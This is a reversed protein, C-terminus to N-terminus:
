KVVKLDHVMLQMTELNNYYNCEYAYLLDVKKLGKDLLHGMRFAVATYTIGGDSVTLKLHQGEKGMKFAKKVQLNRSVFLAGPNEIGTPELRDLELSIVTKLECLPLELDYHLVPHLEKDGLERAAIAQLALILEALNEQRVTFGAAMAHGGHRELLHACEDLARTINFEPISRCSARVFDDYQCAVVSPRYYNETLRSAVLGVLGASKRDFEPQCAFLLYPAAEETEFLLEASQVMKLTREQRDRNQNDLKLALDGAEDKDVAILLNYADMPSELRGAANLRPGIMFGIDRATLNATTEIGAARILSWLGQRPKKRLQELGAKVLTRNEGVLPVIDAVTGIAVLDLWDEACAGEVPNRQFLGQAIKFALGVGALNKEPYTDGPQKPNIVALAYPLEPKPEHHDSIILDVGLLRAHDAEALSRIGCDVTVVVQFGDAVLKDLAAINLGYGEKFRDPIYAHANGGLRRLALVLLATATVGDVDYDGYVAIKESNKLARSLRNVAAEMGILCFPDYLPGQREMFIKAEQATLIGRNALLRRMVTSYTQMGTDETINQPLRVEWNRNSERKM